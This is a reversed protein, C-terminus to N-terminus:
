KLLVKRGLTRGIWYGINDGLITAGAATAIVGGSAIV